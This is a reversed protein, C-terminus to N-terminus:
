DLVGFSSPATAKLREEAEAKRRREQAHAIDIEEAARLAQDALMTAKGPRKVASFATLTAFPLLLEKESVDFSLHPLRLSNRAVEEVASFVLYTGGERLVRYVEGTMKTMNQHLADVDCSVADTTSKDIVVDFTEDEFQLDFADGVVWAIKPRAEANRTRMADIAVESIDLATIHQYGDDYMDESMRANGCGLDLIKALRPQTDSVRSTAKEIFERFKEYGGLWDYTSGEEKEYRKDWYDKGAGYDFDEDGSSSRAMVCRRRRQLHRGAGANTAARSVAATVAMSVSLWAHTQFYGGAHRFSGISPRLSIEKQQHSSASLMNKPQRLTPWCAIAAM